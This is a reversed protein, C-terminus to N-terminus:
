LLFIFLTNVNKSWFIIVKTYNIVNNFVTVQTASYNLTIEECVESYDNLSCKTTWPSGTWFMRSIGYLRTWDLVRTSHEGCGCRLCTQRIIYFTSNKWNRFYWTQRLVTPQLATQVSRQSKRRADYVTRKTTFRVNSLWQSNFNVPEGRQTDTSNIIKYPITRTVRTFVTNHQM